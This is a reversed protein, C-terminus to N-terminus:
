VNVKPSVNASRPQASRDRANIIKVRARVAAKLEMNMSLDCGLVALVDSEERVSNDDRM